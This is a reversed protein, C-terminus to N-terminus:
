RTPRRAIWLGAALGLPILGIWAGLSLSVIGGIWNITIM